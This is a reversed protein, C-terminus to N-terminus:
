VTNGQQMDSGISKQLYLLKRNDFEGRDFVRYGLKEYVHRGRQNSEYVDLWIRGRQLTKSCYEQLASMAAQGIGQGKSAVVIRRLEVSHLDIELALILFGSPKNDLRLGVSEQISLYVIDDRKFEHEHQSLSQPTIHDRTGEDQEMRCFLALEEPPTPRVEIM